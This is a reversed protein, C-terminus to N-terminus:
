LKDAFLSGSVSLSLKHVIPTRAASIGYLPARARSLGRDM